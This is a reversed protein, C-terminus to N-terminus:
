FQPSPPAAGDDSDDSVVILGRSDEASEDGEMDDAGVHATTEIYPTGMAVIKQWKKDTLTKIAPLYAKARAAWPVAVFSHASRKGRRQVGDASSKGSKYMNLAREVASCAIAMAGVPPGYSFDAKVVHELHAAFARLIIDSRFAGTQDEENEYVFISDRLRDAVFNARGEITSCSDDSDLISELGKFATKGIKSRWNRIASAAVAYVAETIIYAGFNAEWINTVVEMFQPHSNAAFGDDHTAAWDLLEPLVSAQWHKLDAPHSNRPFPLDANNYKPKLERKVKGTVTLAIDKPVLSIGM